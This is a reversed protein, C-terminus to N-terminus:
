YKGKITQRRIREYFAEVEVQSPLFEVSGDPMFVTAGGRFGAFQDQAGHLMRDQDLMQNVMTRFRRVIPSEVNSVRVKDKVILAINQGPNKPDIVGHIDYDGVLPKKLKPDIIQGPAVSWFPRDITLEQKVVRDSEVVERRAVHDADVVFYGVQYATEMEEPNAATVVGTKADTHSEKITLPKAPCGKEILPTSATNTNRVIAIVQQLQAVQQVVKFHSATMGSERIYAMSKRNAMIM